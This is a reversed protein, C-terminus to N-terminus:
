YTPFTPDVDQQWAVLGGRINYIKPPPLPLDDDDDDHQRRHYLEHLRRVAVRSAVGRRCICYIPVVVDVDVDMNSDDDDDDNRQRRRQQRLINEMAEEGLEDLPINTSHSLSCIEYQTRVRVDLLIHHVRLQSPPQLLMTEYYDRCSIDYSALLPSPSPLIPCVTATAAIPPSLLQPPPPPPQLDHYTDNMCTMTPHNGCVPCNPNRPPKTITLFSASMGDYMLLKDHLLTTASTSTARKNTATLLKITEMAQLIGILGPVPGLVGADNCSQCEDNVVANQNPYMCRYCGGGGGSSGSSGSANKHHHNYVTLQGQTTVASGSVLPKKLWVCADNIIYRSTLNDTADVIVDYKQLYEMANETSLQDCIAHCVIMPNYRQITQQASIAKKMGAHAHLIQRHLNSIEVVDHDMVDLTGVGAGALYYLATSGIGGAGIVLVSSQQLRQQGSVGLILMQRSYREITDNDLAQQTYSHHTVNNNNSTDQQQIATATTTNADSVKITDDHHSTTTTNTTTTAQPPTKLSTEPETTVFVNADSTDHDNAQQQQQQQLRLLSRLQHNEEQLKQVLLELTEIRGSTTTVHGKQCPPDNTDNMM